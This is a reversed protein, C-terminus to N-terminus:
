LCDVALPRESPRVTRFLAMELVSLQEALERVLAREVHSPATNLLREWYNLGHEPRAGGIPLAPIELSRTRDRAIEFSRTRAGGSANSSPLGGRASQQASPPPKTNSSPKQPSRILRGRGTLESDIESDIESPERQSRILRGRGTLESTIESDIESPERQSRILRELATLYRGVESTIEPAIESTLESSIESAIQTTPARTEDALGTLADHVFSSLSRLRSAGSVVFSASAGTGPAWYSAEFDDPHRRLWLLLVYLIRERVTRAARVEDASAHMHEGRREERVEDASAHMHEGRREERVEMASVPRLQLREVELTLYRYLKTLHELLADASVYPKYSALVALVLRHYEPM